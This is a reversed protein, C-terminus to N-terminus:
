YNLQITIYDNIALTIKKNQITIYNNIKGNIDRSTEADFSQSSEDVDLKETEFLWKKRSGNETM